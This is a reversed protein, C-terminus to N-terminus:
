NFDVPPPVYRFGEMELGEHPSESTCLKCDHLRYFAVERHGEFESLWRAIEDVVLKTADHVTLRVTQSDVQDFSPHGLAPVLMVWCESERRSM